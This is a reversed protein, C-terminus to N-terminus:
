DAGSSYPKIRQYRVSATSADNVAAQSSLKMFDDVSLEEASKALGDVEISHKRGKKLSRIIAEDIQTQSIAM